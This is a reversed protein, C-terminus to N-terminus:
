PGNFQGVVLAAEHPNIILQALPLNEVDVHM